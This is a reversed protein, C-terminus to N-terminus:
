KGGHDYLVEEFRKWNGNAAEELKAQEENMLKIVADIYRLISNLNEAKDAVIKLDQAMSTDLGTPLVDLLLRSKHSPTQIESVIWLQSMDNSTDVSVVNGQRNRRSPFIMLLNLATKTRLWDKKVEHTLRFEGIPLSGYLRIHVRGDRTVVTLVNLRSMSAVDKTDM